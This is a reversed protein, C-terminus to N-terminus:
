EAAWCRRDMECTSTVLTLHYCLSAWGDEWESDLIERGDIAVAIAPKERGKVRDRKNTKSTETRM